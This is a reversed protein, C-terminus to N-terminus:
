PRERGSSSAGTLRLPTTGDQDVTPTAGWLDFMRGERDLLTWSIPSWRSVRARGLGNEGEGVSVDSQPAVGILPLRIAQGAGVQVGEVFQARKGIYLSSIGVGLGPLSGDIDGFAFEDAQEDAVFGLRRSCDFL